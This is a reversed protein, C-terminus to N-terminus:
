NTETVDFSLWRRRMWYVACLDGIGVWLRNWLGYKSTGGMRERHNVPVQLVTGGAYQVLTALFRHMGNFMPIKRAITARFAKLSCGTDIIDDGTVARRSSNAIKSSWRRVFTDQRKRRIGCVLDYSELGAVLGPIDIPDNQGDGDLTVLYDGRAHMFGAKFAASQGSNRNLRLVRVRPDIRKLEHLIGQSEDTSADDIFLVEWRSDSDEYVAMATVIEEFLPRLTEEENYIPIILSIKPTSQDKM